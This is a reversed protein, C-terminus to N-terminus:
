ILKSEIISIFEEIWNDEEYLQYELEVNKILDQVMQVCDIPVMNQRADYPKCELDADM